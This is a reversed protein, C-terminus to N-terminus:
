ATIASRFSRLEDQAVQVVDISSAEPVFTDRGRRQVMILFALRGHHAFRRVCVDVQYRSGDVRQHETAFSQISGTPICALTEARYFDSVSSMPRGILTEARSRLERAAPKSAHRICLTIADIVYFESYCTPDAAAPNATEM